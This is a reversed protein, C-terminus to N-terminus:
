IREREEQKAQEIFKDIMDYLYEMKWKVNNKVAFSNMYEFIEKKQEENM